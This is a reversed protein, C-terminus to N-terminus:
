WSKEIASDSNAHLLESNADKLKINADKRLMNAGLVMERQIM